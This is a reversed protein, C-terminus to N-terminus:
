VKGKYVYENPIIPNHHVAGLLPSETNGPTAASSLGHLKDQPKDLNIVLLQTHTYHTYM